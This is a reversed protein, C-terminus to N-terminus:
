ASAGPPPRFKHPHQLVGPLPFDVTDETFADGPKGPVHRLALPIRVHQHKFVHGHLKFLLMQPGIVGGTGEQEGQHGGNRLVLAAADRFIDLPGVPLPETTPRIVQAIVADQAVIAQISLQHGIPVGIRHPQNKPEIQLAGPQRFDGATQFGQTAGSSAALGQGRLPDEIYQAIFGIHPIFLELFLWGLVKICFSRTLGRKFAGVQGIVVLREDVPFGPLIDLFLQFGPPRFDVGTQAAVAAPGVEKVAFEEAAAAAGGHGAASEGAGGWVFGPDASLVVQSGLAVTALGFGDPLCGNQFFQFCWGLAQRFFYDADFDPHPLDGDGRCGRLFRGMWVLLFGEGM